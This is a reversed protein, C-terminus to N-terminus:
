TVKSTVTYSQDRSSQTELISTISINSEESVMCQGRDNNMARRKHLQSGKCNLSGLVTPIVTSKYFTVHYNNGLVKCYIQRSKTIFYHIM